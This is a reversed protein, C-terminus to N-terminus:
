QRRKHKGNHKGNHKRTKRSGGQTPNYTLYIIEVIDFPQKSEKALNTLYAKRHEETFVKDPNHSNLFKQRGNQNNKGFADFATNILAQRMPGLGRNPNQKKTEERRRAIEEQSPKTKRTIQKKSPPPPAKRADNAANKITMYSRAKNAAAQAEAASAALAAQLAHNEAAKRAAAEEAATAISAALGEEIPDKAAVTTGGMAMGAAAAAQGEQRATLRARANNNANRRVKRTFNPVRGKKQLQETLLAMTKTEWKTPTNLNHTLNKPAAEGPLYVYKVDVPINGEHTEGKGAESANQTLVYGVLKQNDNQSRGKVYFVEDDRGAVRVETGSPYGKVDEKTAERPFPSGEVIRDFVDQIEAFPFVFQKGTRGDDRFVSQFHLNGINYIVIAFESEQTNPLFMRAVPPRYVVKRGQEGHRYGELTLFTIGYQNAILQVIQDDLYRKSQLFDYLEGGLADDLTKIVPLTPAFERRFISAVKDKDDNTLRRFSPSVSTLFSLILCDNKGGGGNSVQYYDLLTTNVRYDNWDFTSPVDNRYRLQPPIARKGMHTKPSILFENAIPTPTKGGRISLTESAGPSVFGSIWAELTELTSVDTLAPLGAAAKAGLAAAM